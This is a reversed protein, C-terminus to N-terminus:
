DFMCDFHKWKNWIFTLTQCWITHIVFILLNTTTQLTHFTANNIIFSNARCKILLRLHYKVSTLLGLQPKLLYGLLSSKFFPIGLKYKLQVNNHYLQNFHTICPNCTPVSRIIDNLKLVATANDGNGYTSNLLDDQFAILRMRCFYSKQNKKSM